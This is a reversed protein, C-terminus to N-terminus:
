ANESALLAAGAASAHRGLESALIETSAFSPGFSLDRARVKIAELVIHQTGLIEGGVILYTLSAHSM